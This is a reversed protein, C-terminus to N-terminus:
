YSKNYPYLTQLRLDFRKRHTEAAGELATLQTQAQEKRRLAEAHEAEKEVVQDGLRHLEQAPM